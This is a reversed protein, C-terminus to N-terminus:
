QTVGQGDAEHCPKRRPNRRAVDWGLRSLERQAETARRFDGRDIALLMEGFWAIPSEEPRFPEPELRTEPM